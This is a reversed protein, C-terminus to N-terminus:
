LAAFIVRNLISRCRFSTLLEQTRREIAPAPDPRIGGADFQAQLDHAMEELPNGRYGHEILLLGYLALFRNRGLARWQIAHVLEHFILSEDRELGLQVLILQDLTVGAVEGAHLGGAIGWQQLPPQPVREVAALRTRSLVEEGFLESLRAFRSEAISRAQPEHVAITTRLWRRARPMILMEHLM